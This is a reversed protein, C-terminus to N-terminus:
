IRSSGDHITAQEEASSRDEDLCESLWKILGEISDETSVEAVSRERPLRKRGGGHLVEVGGDIVPFCVIRVEVVEGDDPLIQERTAAEDLYGHDMEGRLIATM